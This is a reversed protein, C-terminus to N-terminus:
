LSVTMGFSLFGYGVLSGGSVPKEYELTGELGLFYRRGSVPETYLRVGAVGFPAFSGSYAASRGKVQYFSVGPRVVLAPMVMLTSSWILASPTWVLGFSLNTVSPGLALREGALDPVFPSGSLVGELSFGEFLTKGYLFGAAPIIGRVDGDNYSTGVGAFVGGYWGDFSGLPKQAHLPAASLLLALLVFLIGTNKRKM